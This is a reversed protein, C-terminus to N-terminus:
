LTQVANLLTLYITYFSIKIHLVLLFNSHAKYFIVDLIDTTFYHVYCDKETFIWVASLRPFKCM